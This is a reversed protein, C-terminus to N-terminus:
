DVFGRSRRFYLADKTIERVAKAPVGAYVQWELEHRKNLLSKAALVSYAPLVAGGLIVVNTGIFAYDGIEIPHSDQRNKVVDVSHTLVQSFYGAVTAFRGIRVPSTCDIHHNKTIAAQEGIILESQREHQHAFHRSGTGSTFGTIWNRRSISSGEGMEILDLHVAVNFHGISAGAEMRLMEPFIWSMGIRASPHIKYGFFKVLALRRLKWPLLMVVAKKLM